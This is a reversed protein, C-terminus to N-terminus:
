NLSLRALGRQRFGNVTTFAGGAYVTGGPGTALAHVGGDVRPAFPLVAGTFLDFAFINRRAYTHRRSSDAVAKFEGGVVVARGVVAMTWVAGDLVHPTYGVPRDSVMATQWPDAAAPTAVGAAAAVLLAALLRRRMSRDGM